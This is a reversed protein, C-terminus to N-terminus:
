APLAEVALHWPFSELHAEGTGPPHLKIVDNGYLLM